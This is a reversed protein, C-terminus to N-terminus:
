LGPSVPTQGLLDGAQALLKAAGPPRQFRAASLAQRTGSGGTRHAFRLPLGGDYVREYALLARFPTLM